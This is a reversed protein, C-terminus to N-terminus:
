YPPNKRSITNVSTLGYFPSSKNYRHARCPCQSRAEPGRSDSCPGTSCTTTSTTSPESCSASCSDCTCTTPLRKLDCTNATTWTCGLNQRFDRFGCGYNKINKESYKDLQMFYKKSRMNRMSSWWSRTIQERQRYTFRQVPVFDIRENKEKRVTNEM